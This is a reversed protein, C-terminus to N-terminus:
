LKGLFSNRFKGRPMSSAAYYVRRMTYKQTRRGRRRTNTVKRGFLSLSTRRPRFAYSARTHVHTEGSHDYFQMNMNCSQQNSHPLSIARALCRLYPQASVTISIKPKGHMGLSTGPSSRMPMSHLNTEFVDVLRKPEYENRKTASVIVRYLIDYYPM